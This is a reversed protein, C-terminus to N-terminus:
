EFFDDEAVYLGHTDDKLDHLRELEREVVLAGLVVDLGDEHL